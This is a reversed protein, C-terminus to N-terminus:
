KFFHKIYGIAWFTFMLLILITIGLKINDFIEMEWFDDGLTETNGWM